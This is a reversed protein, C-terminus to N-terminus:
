DLAFRLQGCDWVRRYGNQWCNESETKLPDFHDLVLLLNRRMFTHRNYLKKTGGHYWRYSPNSVGELVFGNKRYVDGNSRSYDAYSVISGRNSKRFHSLLRSFGGVVNLGLLSCFRTLEWPHSKDFRAKSFAMVSVLVGEYVLGYYFQNPCAGQIHNSKLFARGQTPDLSVVQCKRAHVRKSCGLLSQIMSLVVSTKEGIEVDTFHILRYGKEEVLRTKMLHKRRMARDSERDYSGHWYAGNVEFCLSLSPVVIDIELPHILQRDNTICDIGYSRIFDVLVQQPQSPNGTPDKICGAMYESMYRDLNTQRIRRKVEPNRAANEVGYLDLNTQRVKEAISPSALGCGGYREKMTDVAARRNDECQSSFEVGYRELNTAKMKEKVVDLQWVSDVGYRDRTTKVIRRNVEDKLFPM